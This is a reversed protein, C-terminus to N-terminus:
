VWPGWHESQVPCGSWVALDSFTVASCSFTKKFPFMRLIGLYVMNLIRETIRPMGFKYIIPLEYFPSMLRIDVTSTGYSCRM